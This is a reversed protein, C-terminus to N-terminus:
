WDLDGVDNDQNFIKVIQDQNPGKPMWVVVKKDQIGSAILSGDKNFKSVIIMTTSSLHDDKM